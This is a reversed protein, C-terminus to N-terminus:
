ESPSASGPAAKPQEAQQGAVPTGDRLKIVGETVIRDGAKLGSLVEFSQGQISGLQVPIQKAILMQQGEQNEEEVVFVFSQDGIRSIATTPVTIGALQEWIVRARVIQDTRLKNDQNNYIAKVLITQTGTGASPSIYSVRSSGILEGTDQSIVEVPTGVRIQSLRQVPINISVELRENQRISTLTTQSDVFDGVKVPLEGVIGSIPADVNYYELQVQQGTADAQAQEIERELRNVEAQQADIV